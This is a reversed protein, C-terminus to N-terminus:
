ESEDFNILPKDLIARMEALAKQMRDMYQEFGWLSVLVELNIDAESM